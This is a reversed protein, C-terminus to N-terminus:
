YPESLDHMTFESELEERDIVEIRHLIDEAVRLLVENFEAESSVKPFFNDKSLEGSLSFDSYKLVRGDNLLLEIRQVLFNREIKSQPIWFTGSCQVASHNSPSDSFISIVKNL